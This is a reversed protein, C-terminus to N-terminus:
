ALAAPRAASAAAKSARRLGLGIGGFGIMMFLWTAPEPATSVVSLSIGGSNDWYSTDPVFFNVTSLGSLTFNIPNAAQYAQFAALATAASDFTMYPNGNVGYTVAPGGNISFSFAPRYGFSCTSPTSCGSVAPINSGDSATGNSWYSASTFAGAVETINYTGAGLSLSVGSSNMASIDVLTASAASAGAVMSLAVAALARSWSLKM